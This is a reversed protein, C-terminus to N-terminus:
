AAPPVYKKPVVHRVLTRMAIWSFPKQIFVFDEDPEPYASMLIMVVSPFADTVAGALSMGDLGPMQVDSIIVDVCAGLTNVMDLAQRGNVAEIVDFGDALLISRVFCRIVSDDDVVLALM